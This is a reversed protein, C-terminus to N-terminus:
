AWVEVFTDAGLPWSVSLTRGYVDMIDEWALIEDVVFKLQQTGVVMLLGCRLPSRYTHLYNDSPVVKQVGLTATFRLGADYRARKAPDSLLQYADTIRRFVEASGPERSVDPHWQKSLRRYAQKVTQIDADPKVALVQYLTTEEDPRKPADFWERLVTEPLVISWSGECWGFASRDGSGREKTSGIYRVDVLRTEPTTNTSMVPATIHEGLHQEALEVLLAAHKPSVRWAKQTGDWLRDSAPVRLKLDAVLAPNYPTKYILAAGDITITSM